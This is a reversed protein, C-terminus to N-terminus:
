NVPLISKLRELREKDSAMESGKALVALAEDRKKAKFLLDALITYGDAHQPWEAILKRATGIASKRRAMRATSWEEKQSTWHTTKIKTKNNENVRESDGQASVKVPKSSRLFM